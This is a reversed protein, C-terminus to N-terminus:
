VYNRRELLQFCLWGPLVPVWFTLLRYSLVAAVAIAPEMGVGTLGAVLAAELAGLGGPTPAAAAILSAGLYVAGVQAFSVGGDFAAVACALAVVYALTVGLSGGFLASLRIPSTALTRISSLSQRVPPLVHARALGRGRRTALVAGVLALVVAIVVLLTSSSPIAFAQGGGRGSWALFVALLGLHVIGGALVNLGVGTVADAPAIGAKQMYRVNLAMGGVNAPTVRNVFSSALAVQVTPVFPLDERVGGMMGVGAAVYTLGSAVLVGALWGWNASGLAAISEDVNALQPLLVYFAGTLTAIMVLTRPRVRVLRELAVPELGTAEVIGDRLSRLTSKSVARRSAASLALPQLYPMAAALDAAPIVGAAAGVAAEPGVHAALSALLEARDLARARADAATAGAGVDIIVPARDADVLVNAARLAGHALGAAHLAAVQEWVARLLTDDVTGDPLEDLRQGGVDSMALVMSGDAVAM